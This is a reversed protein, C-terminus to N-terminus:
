PSVVVAQMGMEAYRLKVLEKPFEVVGNSNYPDAFIYNDRNFGALVLCHEGRTWTFTNNTGEIVWSKGPSSAAMNITAWVLVPIGKNIYRKCLDDMSVGNLTKVTMDASVIKRIAKEIVPAFCGFSSSSRPDGAFKEYPNAGYTIGDVVTFGQKDLYDDIFEDISIDYGWFRLMMVASVSECGTPYNAQSLYPIYLMKESPSFFLAYVVAAVIGIFLFGVLPNRRRRRTQTM